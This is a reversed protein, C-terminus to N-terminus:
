TSGLEDEENIVSIRKRTSTRSAQSDHMMEAALENNTYDISNNMTRAKEPSGVLSARKSRSNRM